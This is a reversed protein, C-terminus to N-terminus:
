AEGKYKWIFGKYCKKLGRCCRSINGQDFGNRGCEATSHWEQVFEGDLTFQQVPKSRKGNTNAEAARETRTGYNNNYTPDCWEITTLDYNITMDENYIVKNLKKGEPGEIKHNIQPLNLPNPLYYEGVLRHIKFTKSEEGNRAHFTNYDNSNPSGETIVVKGTNHWNTNKVRGLNSLEFREFGEVPTWIEIETM